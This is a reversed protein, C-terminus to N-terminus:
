ARVTTGPILAPEVAKEPGVMTVGALKALGARTDPERVLTMVVMERLSSGKSIQLGYVATEGAGMVFNMEAKNAQAVQGFAKKPGVNLLHSGPAVVLRTFRGVKLHAVTQSDLDVDFGVAFGGVKLGRHIYILGYGAPPAEALMRDRDAPTVNKTSRHNDLYTWGVMIIVAAIPRTVYVPAGMLGLVASVIVAVVFAILFNVIKKLM